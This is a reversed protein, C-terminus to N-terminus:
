SPLPVASDLIGDPIEPRDECINHKFAQPLCFLFLVSKKFARRREVMCRSRQSELPRQCSSDAEWWFLPDLTKIDNAEGRKPALWSCLMWAGLLDEGSMSDMFKDKMFLIWGLRSIQRGLELLTTFVEEM